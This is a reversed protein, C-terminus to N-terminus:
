PLHNATTSSLQQLLAPPVFLGLGVRPSYKPMEYVGPVSHVPIQHQFYPPYQQMPSYGAPVMQPPAYYAAPNHLKQHSRTSVLRAKALKYEQLHGPAMSWPPAYAQHGTDSSKPPSIPPEGSSKGASSSIDKRLAKRIRSLISRKRGKKSGMTDDVTKTSTPGTGSSSIEHSAAAVPVPALLSIAPLSDM